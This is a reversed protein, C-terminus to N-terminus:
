VQIKRDKWRVSRLIRARFLSYAHIATFFLFLLPYFVFIWRRFNGCRRSFLMTQLAYAAYLLFSLALGVPNISAVSSLLAGASIFSGSIWLITMLMVIPHTSKSGVAFSKCWGEILSRTGEPYMRFHIVGSGGMCSVPLSKDMFAQGLALDDLVAGLIKRHGGTSFYEDKDCLICPGFSGATKFRAGWRNFVNMGVIVIVNFIASLNEYLRHVTHYPQLSLIGRAGQRKYFGLIRYLSDADALSTDADLFMLWQGNAHKAGRWCAASKGSGSEVADNCLVKAGFSAAIAATRDTSHDDVVLVEFSRYRQEQLSRLLPYIRREENRAPIIISVFPLRIKSETNTVVPLSWFMFVGVLLAMIGLMLHIGESLLM